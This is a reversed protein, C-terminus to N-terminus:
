ITTGNTTKWNRWINNATYVAFLSQNKRFNLYSSAWRKDDMASYDVFDLVWQFCVLFIWRNPFFFLWTVEMWSLGSHDATM